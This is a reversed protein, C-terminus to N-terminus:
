WGEPMDPVPLALAADDQSLGFADLGPWDVAEAARFAPSRSDLEMGADSIETLSAFQGAGRFDTLDFVRDFSFEAVDGATMVALGNDHSLLAFGDSAGDGASDAPDDAVPLKALGGQDDPEGKVFIQTEMSATDTAGIIFANIPIVTSSEGDSLEVRFDILVSEGDNLYDFVTEDAEFSWTLVGDSADFTFLSALDVGALGADQGRIQISTISATYTDNADIDSYEITGSDRLVPADNEGFFLSAGNYATVPDNAGDVTVTVTRPTVGGQGYAVDYTLTITEKEGASLDQFNGPYITFQGSELDLSYVFTLDPNSTELVVNSVSLSDGDADTAGELLDVYVFFSDENMSVDFDPADPAANQPTITITVPATVSDHGDSIEVEYTLILSGSLQSFLSSQADFSWAVSPGDGSAAFSLLGIVDAETLDGVDGSLAVGLTSGTHSDSADPDSIGIVGSATLQGDGAAEADAELQSNWPEFYPADNQGIVTFQLERPVIGGDGDDLNFRITLIETEGEALDEYQGFPFFVTGEEANVNATVVRDPNDTFAVVDTVTVTDSDVDEVSALLNVWLPESEGLSLTFDVFTPLDNTGVVTFTATNPTTGGFGDGVLYTVTVTESEGEQLDTFQDLDLRLANYNNPDLGWSIVRDPNSSMVSQIEEIGVTNGADVDSATALLDVSFFGDDENVTGADIATATPADNRGDVIMTAFGPVGSTAGAALADAEIVEYSINLVAGSYLSLGNFQAPDITLEGTAPDLTYDVAAGNETAVVVNIVTLADGEVDSAGDLLDITVPADDESVFEFAGGSVTPQDNSGTVTVSVTTSVSEDGDDVSVIFDFTVTEGEGLYDFLANPASFQWGTSYAQQDYLSMLNLVDAESLSGTEGSMVVGTVAVSLTDGPNGDSFSIRGTQDLWFNADEIFEASLDSSDIDIVPAFNSGTITVTLTGTATDTGDTATYTIVVTESEGTGLYDYADGADLSIEGTAADYTITGVFSGADVSQLTITDGDFDFADALVNVNLTGTEDLDVVSDEGLLPGNNRGDLYVTTDEFVLEEIGSLRDDGDAGSVHLHGWHATVDYDRVSGSYVAADHGRGGILIDNGSGGILVDNGNGGTLLDNGAGGDLRDDGNNGNLSDRGAGGSLRDDGNGGFLLDNGRGGSIQDDGNAGIILDNGGNGSIVDDGRSGILVESRNSGNIDRGNNNRSSGHDDNGRAAGNGNDEHGQGKDSVSKHNKNSNKKSM